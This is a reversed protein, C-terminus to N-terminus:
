NVTRDTVANALQGLHCERPTKDTRSRLIRPQFLRPAAPNVIYLYQVEVVDGVRVTGRGITTVQGIVVETGADDLVALEANQKGGIGVKTVYADIEKIFKFKVLSAARGAQYGSLARRFMVGEKRCQQAATLMARKACEGVATPVLGILAPDAGLATLTATLAAYRDTFPTTETIFGGATPMDFLWLTRAVVEGDFVWRGATLNRFPALMAAGVNTVKAAGQRNFVAVAGDVVQILVRDGDLKPQAVWTPNTLMAPIDQPAATDALMPRVPAADSTIVEAPGGCIAEIAALVRGIAAPDVATAAQNVGAVLESQARVQVAVADGVTGAPALNMATDLQGDTPASDATFRIARTQRYGKGQKGNITRESAAAAKEPTDHTKRPTFTGYTGTRGYQCTVTDGVTFVRYTKDSTGEVFILEVATVTVTSM